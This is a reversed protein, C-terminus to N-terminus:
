QLAKKKKKKTGRCFGHPQRIHPKRHYTISINKKVNHCWDLELNWQEDRMKQHLSSESQHNHSRITLESLVSQPTYILRTALCLLALCPCHMTFTKKKKCSSCHILPQVSITDNTPVVKNLWLCGAASGHGPVEVWGDEGLPSLTSHRRYFTTRSKRKKGSKRTCGGPVHQM